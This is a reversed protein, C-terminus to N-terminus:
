QYTTKQEERFHHRVKFDRSYGPTPAIPNGYSGSLQSFHLGKIDKRKSLTSLLPIPYCAMSSAEIQVQQVRM